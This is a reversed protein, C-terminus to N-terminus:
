FIKVLVGRVTDLMDLDVGKQKMCVAVADFNQEINKKSWEKNRLKRAWRISKQEVMPDHYTVAVGLSELTRAFALAPSNECLAQGPKFALGVVLVRPKRHKVNRCSNMGARAQVLFEKAIKSPRAAMRKTSKELIPLSCNTKLYHPNVPICHGGVGLGPTFPMFGFPKTSAAKIVENVDIGHSVCADAIENVYAINVMRFCNEYLKTMEAAEPSSVLVLKRFVPNYLAQIKTLSEANIGSVIKPIDGLAPFTRGPDVREPSMGCHYNELHPGLLERSMGVCVSSEIVITSGHKAHTTVLDIASLIHKINISNDPNVLTPVSILFHTGNALASPQSTLHVNENDKYQTKLYEVRAPSIDFGIVSYATSFEHVLTEGVYGVGIVCVIADKDVCLSAIKEVTTPKVEPLDNCM